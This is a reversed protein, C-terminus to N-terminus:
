RGPAMAQARLLDVVASMEGGTVHHKCTRLLEPDTSDYAISLSVLGSMAVDSAADGIMATSDAVAGFEAMIDRAPRGKFNDDVQVDVHGTFRGEGDIELRNARIEDIAFLEQARQALQYPGSSVIASRMGNDKLYAFVREIGPVPRRAAVLQRFPGASRGQWLKKATLWSLREYDHSGLGTWLQWAQKETGMLQHLELWFNKGEFVVGDMDFLVLKLM